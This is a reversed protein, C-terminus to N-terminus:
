CGKIHKQKVKLKVSPLDKNLGKQQMKIDSQESTVHYYLLSCHDSEIGMFSPTGVTKQKCLTIVNKINVAQLIGDFTLRSVNVAIEIKERVNHGWNRNRM